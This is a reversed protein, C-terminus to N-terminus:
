RGTVRRAVRRATPKRVGGPRTVPAVRDPPTVAACPDKSGKTLTRIRAPCGTAPRGAGGSGGVRHGTRGHRVEVAVVGAGAAFRGDGDERAAGVGTEGAADGAGVALFEAGDDALVEGVALEVHQGVGFAAAMAILSIRATSGAWRALNTM